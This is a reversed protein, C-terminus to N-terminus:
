GCLVFENEPAHVSSSLMGRWIFWSQLSSDSVTHESECESLCSLLCPIMFSFVLSHNVSSSCSWLVRRLSVRCEACYYYLLFAEFHYLAQSPDELVLFKMTPKQLRSTLWCYLCLSLFLLFLKRRGGASCSCVLPSALLMCHSIEVVLGLEEVGCCCGDVFLHGRLVLGPDSSCSMTVAFSLLQQSCSDESRRRERWM